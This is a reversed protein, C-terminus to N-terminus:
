GIRQSASPCCKHEETPYFSEPSKQLNNIASSHVSPSILEKISQHKLPAGPFQERTKNTLKVMAVFDTIGFGFSM